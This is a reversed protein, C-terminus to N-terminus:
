NPMEILVIVSPPMATAMPSSISSAITSMSFMKRRRRSFRWAAAAVFVRELDDEQGGAFHAVRDDVRRQDHAHDHQRQKRHGSQFAPHESRQAQRVHNRQHRGQDHRQRDRRHKADNRTAALAAEHLLSLVRKQQPPELTHVCTHQPKRQPMGPRNEDAVSTRANEDFNTTNQIPESNRGGNLSPVSVILTCVSGPVLRCSLSRIARRASSKSNSTGFHEAHRAAGAPRFQVLVGFSDIRRLDVHPQLLM